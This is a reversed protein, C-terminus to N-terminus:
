TRKWKQLDKSYTIFLQAYIDSVIHMQKAKNLQYSCSVHYRREGKQKCGQLFFIADKPIANTVM